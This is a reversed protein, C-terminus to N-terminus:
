AWNLVLSSPLSRINGGVTAKMGETTQKTTTTTTQYFTLVTKKNKKEHLGMLALRQTPSM